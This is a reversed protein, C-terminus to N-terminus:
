YVLTIEGAEALDKMIDMMNKRAEMVDVKRIAGMYEMEEIVVTAWQKSCNAFIKMMTDARFGSIAVALERQSIEKLFRQTHWDGLNQVATEFGDSEHPTERDALAAVRGYIMDDPIYAPIYGKEKVYGLGLLSLMRIEVMRPSYAAQISLVGELIIKRELLGNGALDDAHILNEGIEKIVAPDVDDIVMMMMLSLFDNGKELVVDELRLIGEMRASSACKVLFELMPLCADKGDNAAGSSYQVKQSM